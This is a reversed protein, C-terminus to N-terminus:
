KIPSRRTYKHYKSQRSLKFVISVPDFDEHLSTYIYFSTGHYGSKPNEEREDADTRQFWFVFMSLTLAKKLVDSKKLKELEVCCQHL